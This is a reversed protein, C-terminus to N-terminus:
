TEAPSPFIFDSVTLIRKYIRNWPGSEANGEGIGINGSVNRVRHTWGRLRQQQSTFRDAPCHFVAADRGLYAGLLSWRDDVLFLTNTNAPSANWDLWGHVWGPNTPNPTTTFGGHSARALSGGNDDAYLQWGRILDSTRCASQPM